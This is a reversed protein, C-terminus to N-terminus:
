RALVARVRVLVPLAMDVTEVEKAEDLVLKGHVAATIRIARRKMSGARAPREELHPQRGAPVHEDSLAHLTRVAGAQLILNIDVVTEPGDLPLMNRHAKTTYVQDPRLM